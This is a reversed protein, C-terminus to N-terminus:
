AAFIKACLYVLIAPVLCTLLFFNAIGSAADGDVPFHAGLGSCVTAQVIGLLVSYFPGFRRLHTGLRLQYFWITGGFMAAPILGFVILMGITIPLYSARELDPDPPLMDRAFTYVSMFVLFYGLELCGMALWPVNRRIKGSHYDLVAPM